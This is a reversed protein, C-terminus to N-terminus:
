SPSTRKVSYVVLRHASCYAGGKGSRPADCYRWEKKPDGHVWSCGDKHRPMVAYPARQSSVMHPAPLSPVPPKRQGSRPQAQPRGGVAPVDASHAQHKELSRPANYCIPSQRTALALRHAKGIVANKSVGLLKAIERASLQPRDQEWLRRLEDNREATWYGGSENTM